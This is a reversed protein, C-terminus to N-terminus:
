PRAQEIAQFSVQRYLSAANVLTNTLDSGIRIYWHENISSQLLLTKQMNRFALFKQYEADDLFDIEVMFVAGKVTDAIVTMYPAGLVMHQAQTESTVIPLTDMIVEVSIATTPDLPDELWWKTNLMTCTVIASPLSVLLSTM